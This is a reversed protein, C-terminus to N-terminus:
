FLKMQEEARALAEKTFRYYVNYVMGNLTEKNKPRTVTVGVDPADDQNIFGSGHVAYTLVRQINLDYLEQSPVCLVAAVLLRHPVSVRRASGIESKAREASAEDM